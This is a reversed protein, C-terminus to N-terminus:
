ASPRSRRKTPLRAVLGAILELLQHVHDAQIPLNERVVDLFQTPAGLTAAARDIVEPLVRLEHALVAAAGGASELHARLDGLPDPLTV